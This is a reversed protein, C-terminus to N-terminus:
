SHIQTSTWHPGQMRTVQRPNQGCLAGQKKAGTVSSQEVDSPDQVTKGTTNPQTANHQHNNYWSNDTPNHLHIHALVFMQQYYPALPYQTLMPTMSRSAHDPTINIQTPNHGGKQHPTETNATHMQQKTDLQQILTSLQTEVSGVRSKFEERIYERMKNWAEEVANNTADKVITSLETCLMSTIEIKIAAMEQQLTVKTAELEKM